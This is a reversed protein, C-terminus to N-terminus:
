NRNKSVVENHRIHRSQRLLVAGHAFFDEYLTQNNKSDLYRNLISGQLVVERWERGADSWHKFDNKKTYEEPLKLYAMRIERRINNKKLLHLEHEFKRRFSQDMRLDPSQLNGTEFVNILDEFPKHIKNPLESCKFVIEKSHALNRKVYLFWLKPQMWEFKWDLVHSVLLSGWICSWAFAFVIADTWTVTM